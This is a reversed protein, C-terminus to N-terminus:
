ALWQLAPLCWLSTLVRQRMHRRTSVSVLVTVPVRAHVTIGEVCVGAEIVDLQSALVALDDQM